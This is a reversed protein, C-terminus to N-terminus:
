VDVSLVRFWGLEGDFGRVIWGRQIDESVVRFCGLEGDFVAWGDGRYIRM